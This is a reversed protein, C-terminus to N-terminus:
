SFLRRRMVLVVVAGALSVGMLAFWVGINSDDGTQPNSPDAAALVAFSASASGDAFEM